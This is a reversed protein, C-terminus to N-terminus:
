YWISYVNMLVVTAAQENVGLFGSILIMFEWAWWDLAVMIYSPIALSFYIGLDDFVRKDPKILASQLESSRHTYVLMIIMM